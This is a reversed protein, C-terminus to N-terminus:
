VSSSVSDVDVMSESQDRVNKMGTDCSEIQATGFQHDFRAPVEDSVGTHQDGPDGM